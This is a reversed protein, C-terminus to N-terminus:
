KAALLQSIAQANGVKELNMVADAITGAREPSMREATNQMFKRTIQEATAPEDPLINERKSVVRGDKLTVIVEGSRYKPFGSNPDVEYRVKGALQLLQPDSYSSADIEQLGFRGRLLGCALAYPLSFQAAYSSVPRLKADSPECILPVAAEAVLARVSEVNAADIAHERSLHIAANLFAHLQHCAPFLKVSTRGFEWQEGLGETVLALDASGSHAGLFCPFLGFRGEYAESPGIYGSRAFAAATVGSAGAWGPHMRKTWSGEQIPQLNGSTMSLAIGQAMALQSADLKMLRGALLACGFTGAISTAHFGSKVFGGKAAGALRAAVEVGLVCATLLEPGTAQLEAGVGLATPVCSATLHVSGPLYTDDYDLGHVLIGNMVVADRLALRGDMGIVVSNGSGFSGLASFATRAFGFQSAAFADGIADLMLLKARERVPAPISACSQAVAFEALRGSLTQKTNM